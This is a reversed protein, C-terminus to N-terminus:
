IATMPATLHPFMPESGSSNREKRRRMVIMITNRLTRCRIHLSVEPQERLHVKRSGNGWNVFLVVVVVVTLISLQRSMEM